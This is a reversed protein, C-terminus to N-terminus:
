SLALFNYIRKRTKGDRRYSPFRNPLCFTCLSCDQIQDAAIGANLLSMILGSKLDFLYKGDRRPTFIKDVYPKDSFLRYLEEGVPYCKKEIAPGLYFYYSKKEGPIMELLSKEIGQCLGRWGVHIVGGVTFDSNFFFLPVCDATQIVAVAGPKELLLGDSEIGAQWERDKTIQASHVQKLFMLPRPKLFRQLAAASFNIETFGFIIRENEYVQLAHGEFFRKQLEFL